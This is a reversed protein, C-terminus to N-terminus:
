LNFLKDSSYNNLYIFNFLFPGSRNFTILNAVAFWWLGLDGMGQGSVSSLTSNPGM